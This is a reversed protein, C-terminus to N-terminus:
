KLARLGHAARHTNLLVFAPPHDKLLKVLQSATCCLRAAAPKPELGCGWLVDLAEALVAPYDDHTPSVSIRGPGGRSTPCRSKWLDSRADGNLVACRVQVALALRLRWIAERKNETM